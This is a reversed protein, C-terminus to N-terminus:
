NDLWKEFEEVFERAVEGTLKKKGNLMFIDVEYQKDMQINLATPELLYEYEVMCVNSNSQFPIIFGKIKIPKNETIGDENQINARQEYVRHFYHEKDIM